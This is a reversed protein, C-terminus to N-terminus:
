DGTVIGGICLLAHIAVKRIEINQWSTWMRPNFQLGFSQKQVVSQKSTDLNLMGTLFIETM